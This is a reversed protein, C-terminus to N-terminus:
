DLDDLDIQELDEQALQPSNPQSALFACIVADSLNDRSTPNSQTHAASVGYTTNDAENTSSNNNRNTSNSSVFAVHQSNRSTNTSRRLLKLNMDEQTIVKGQIELQSIFKQLKDFTQDIIKSSSGSFNEYQQKLLTRQVKKSEKNGGHRKEIAEMLLKADKYSHFKLQDKNPLAMLLTGRSKIENRRDQKEEAYTPEYEQEVEGVTRKLVKNGNLIVEWLSYDTMLFYQEIMMLWLDYEGQHSADCYVVFDANGEPLALIPAEYLKQKLLQFALEQDERWIYKRNKETPTTPSAWNKVVEIKASDVHIGRDALEKLQDSLEQMELPALRYPARAVPAAGPILEIQFEVQRIPPLGPLDTVLNPDQHVNKDRLLYARGHASNNAKTCQNRYHGKEGCAHCTVSVPQLNSGTTPGKNKCNRTLHGVKNFDVIKLQPPLMLGSLKKGEIRNNNTIM